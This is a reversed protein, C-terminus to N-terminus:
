AGDEWARARRARLRLRDAEGHDGRAEALASAQLLALTHMPELYLVRDLSRRADDDRRTALEVTARLWWAEADMAHERTWALLGAHAADLAGHDAMARLDALTGARAAPAPVSPATPATASASARELMFAGPADIWRFAGEWIERPDAHGLFLLGGQRVREILRDRLTARSPGDLYIAVNRCMAADCSPTPAADLLDAEVWDIMALAEARLRLSGDRMAEFWPQAWPPLPSRQGLPSVCGTRARGLADTNRDIAVIRTSRRDRGVSAATAAMSLAEAGTACGLSALQLPRGGHGEMWRRLAEFAQPQRFLWTEPPVAHRWLTEAEVPHRELHLVLNADSLALRSGLRRAEQLLHEAVGAELGHRRRIWAALPTM